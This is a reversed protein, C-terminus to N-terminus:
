LEGEGVGEGECECRERERCGGCECPVLPSTGHSVYRVTSLTSSIRQHRLTHPPIPRWSSRAACLMCVVHAGCMCMCMPM